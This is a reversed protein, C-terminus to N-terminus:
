PEVGPLFRRQPWRAMRYALLSGFATEERGVSGTLAPLKREILSLDEDALTWFCLRRFMLWAVFQDDGSDGVTRALSLDSGSTVFPSTLYAQLHGRQIGHAMVNDIPNRSAAYRTLYDLVHQKRRANVIYSHMGYVTFEQPIRHVHVVGKERSARTWEFMRYMDSIEVLTADLYLVDWNGGSGAELAEIVDPLAFLASSLLADDEMVHLHEGGGAFERLAQLHSLWCGYQAPRLGAPCDARKLGDIAALRHVPYWLQTEALQSQMASRREVSRDLNIFVGEIM